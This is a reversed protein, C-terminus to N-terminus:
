LYQVQIVFFVKFLTIKFLFFAKVSIDLSKVTYLYGPNPLGNKEFSRETRETGKREKYFFTGNKGNKEM